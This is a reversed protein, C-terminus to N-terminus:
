KIQSNGTRIYLQLDNNYDINVLYKFFNDKRQM